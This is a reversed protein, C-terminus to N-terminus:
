KMKSREWKSIEKLNEKLWATKKMKDLYAVYSIPCGHEYAQRCVYDYMYPQMGVTTSDPATTGLWGFNVATFDDAIREACPIVYRDVAEILREPKFIDFANGRSLIHWGYHSKLAGECFLPKEDLLRYVRMQARAVNYWYPYPVDEAGDFYVFRFGCSNYVEAIRAAIEDAIGSDQNVRIFRDWDDVDPQVMSSGAPCSPAVTSGFLGRQLGTFKWATGCKEIATYSLMEDGIRILRRGKEPRLPKVNGEAYMESDSADLPRSLTLTSVINMRPDPHGGAIYPDDTSVKTYHIHLGPILGAARIRDCIEMLDKMGNPYEKRWLFHGCTYAYDIYYIVMMQFGGEKAYRIHEDINDLNVDRLEYYSYQYEPCRRSQVGRPMDFDREIVDVVDLFSEKESVVLAASADLLGVNNESGAYMTHSGKQAHGDIRTEPNLGMLCVATRDDWSVNLWEGYHGRDKVPLQLIALEDIETKRKIGYDEIRYDIRELNFSLYGEGRGVSIVAIDYTRAFEVRLTDGDMMIRNSPFSMPRAPYMLFNENDYPRYQLISCLPLEADQVLCEDGTSKCVLSKAYGDSSLILKMAENEIVIDRASGLVCM